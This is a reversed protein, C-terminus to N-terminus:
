MTTLKQAEQWLRRQQALSPSTHWDYMGTRRRLYGGGIAKNQQPHGTAHRVGFSEIGFMEFWKSWTDFRLATSLVNGAISVLTSPILNVVPRSSIADTM